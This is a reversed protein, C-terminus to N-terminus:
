RSLIAQLKSPPSTCTRFKRLIEISSVRMLEVPKSNSNKKIEVVKSTVRCTQLLHMEWSLILFCYKCRLACFFHKSESHGGLFTSRCCEAGYCVSIDLSRQIGVKWGTHFSHFRYSRSLFRLTRVPLTRAGDYLSSSVDEWKFFRIIHKARLITTRM